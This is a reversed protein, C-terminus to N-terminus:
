HEYEIPAQTLALTNVLSPGLIADEECRVQVRTLNTGHLIMNRWLSKNKTQTDNMQFDSFCSAWREAKAELLAFFDADRTKWQWFANSKAKCHHQITHRVQQCLFQSAGCRVAVIHYPM